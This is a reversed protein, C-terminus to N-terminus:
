DTPFSTLGYSSSIRLAFEVLSSGIENLRNMPMRFKPASIGISAIVMGHESMVPSGACRVDALYEENDLAYGRRRTKVLDAELSAISTITRPARRELGQPFRSELDGRRDFALFCKGIATCHLPVQDGIKTSVSVPTTTEVFDIVLMSDGVPIAVHASEGFTEALESLIPRAIAQVDFESRLSTSLSLIRLGLSYRKTDAHRLVYGRRSLTELLRHITAREWGLEKYLDNLSLPQDAQELAELVVLGKDLSHIIKSDKSRPTRGKKTTASVAM